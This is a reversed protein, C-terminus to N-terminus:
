PTEDGVAAQRLPVEAVMVDDSPVSVLFRTGVGTVSDCSIQWGHHEALMKCIALGVGSGQTESRPGLRKFPEFVYETYKSDIGIGNDEIVLDVMEATPVHKAYIRVQPQRDVSRYKIANGVLNQFLPKLLVPDGIVTPLDEILVEAQAEEIRLSLDALTSQVLPKLEVESLKPLKNTFRSYALLDAILRSMNKASRMIGDIDAQADCSLQEGVDQELIRAFTQIKRLPEQLDHSALYSFKKLSENSQKLDENLETLQRTREHVRRELIANLETTEENSREVLQMQHHIRIHSACLNALAQLTRIDGAGYRNAASSGVNITGFCHDGSTLPAVMGELLGGASLAACDVLDGREAYTVVSAVGGSFVQGVFSGNVPLVTDSPVADNGGVMYLKLTDDDQPLAISSRDSRVITLLWKSVVTLTEILDKTSGLEAIFDIPFIVGDNSEAFVPSDRGDPHDAGSEPLPLLSSATTAQRSM